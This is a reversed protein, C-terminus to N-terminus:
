DKLGVRIGICNDNSNIRLLHYNSAIYNQTTQPLKKLERPYMAVVPTQHKELNFMLGKDGSHSIAKQNIYDNFVLWYFGPDANFVNGGCDSWITGVTQERSINNLVWNINNKTQNFKAEPTDPYQLLNYMPYGFCFWLVILLLSNKVLSKPASYFHKLVLKDLGIAAIISCFPLYIISYHPYFGHMIGYAGAVICFSLMLQFSRSKYHLYQLGYLSYFTLIADLTFFAYAHLKQITTETQLHNVIDINFILSYYIFDQLGGKLYFYGSILLFPITAGTAIFLSDKIIIKSRLQFFELLLFILIVLGAILSKFNFCVMVGLMIGCALMALPNHRRHFKIFLYFSILWFLTQLLDPRIQIATEHVIDWMFFIAVTFAAIRKSKTMEQAIFFLMLGILCTVGLSIKRLILITEFSAAQKLLSFILGNLLSYFPGHHEFFDHYLLKGQFINWAIHSHQLEDNNFSRSISHGYLAIVNNIIIGLPILLLLHSKFPKNNQGKQSPRHIVLSM